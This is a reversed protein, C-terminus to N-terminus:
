KAELVVEKAHILQTILQCYPTPVGYKQGKSVIAGNICDIETLRHNKVLDQHMSPYHLGITERNYCATEIYNVTEEVPLDVNEHKAVKSFESVIGMLMDHATATEGLQAMNCELLTCLSNMTGNVCAKKYIAFRINESYEANLQADSLVKCIDKAVTADGGHLEQLAISGNGFLKARGPGEMGATWMTNGILIRERKVYKEIIEEHGIGNLLCLVNTEPTIVSQISKLMGDLQMAKTFLIILDARLSADVEDKLYAKLPVTKEEGNFNAKLGHANITDVHEKWGDVLVVENNAEHLMLGFRMGMAGAGAIIIKM